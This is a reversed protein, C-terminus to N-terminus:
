GPISATHGLHLGQLRLAQSGFGHVTATCLQKPLACQQVQFTCFQVITQQRRTAPQRKANALHHRALPCSPRHALPGHPRVPLCRLPPRSHLPKEPCFTGRTCTCGAGAARKEPARLPAAPAPCQRGRLGMLSHGHARNRAKCNKQGPSAGYRMRECLCVVM